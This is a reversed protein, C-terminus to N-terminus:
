KGKIWLEDTHIYDERTAWAFFAKLTCVYGPVSATALPQNHFPTKVETQLYLIFAKIHHKGLMGIDAPFEKMKLFSLFRSLFNYFWEVTRPSKGQTQCSLKFGEILNDLQYFSSAMIVEKNKTLTDNYKKREENVSRLLNM